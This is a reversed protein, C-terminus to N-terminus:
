TSMVLEVDHMTTANPMTPANNESGQKKDDYAHM